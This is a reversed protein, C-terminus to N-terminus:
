RYSSTQKILGEELEYEEGQLDTRPEQRAVSPASPSWFRRKCIVLSEGQPLDISTSSKYLTLLIKKDPLSM